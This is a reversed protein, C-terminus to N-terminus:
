SLQAITGEKPNIDGNVMAQYVKMLAEEGNYHKFTIWQQAAQVFPIWVKAVRKQFDAPGWERIRKQAQTPAFFFKAKEGLSNAGKVRKDWHSAGVLSIHKLEDQLHTNLSELLSINGAFDVTATAVQALQEINDYTVVQQYLGTSEVFDRNKASTLGIVEVGEPAQQSLIFALALATKSSASTLLLQKAGFFNLDRCLDDLLFSTLFLPRFILQIDEYDRHYGPDHQSRTYQNYIVALEQRHAAQDIFNIAKVKAADVVLHSAMPFYGYIREGVEIDAHQSAIVNAFGWTPLKGWGAETPFFDWYKLSKGLAAYTINNATFAFKDIQMLVQGESLDAATPVAEQAFKIDKIDQQNILLELTQPAM